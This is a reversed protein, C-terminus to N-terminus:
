IAIGKDKGHVINIETFIIRDCKLQIIDYGFNALYHEVGGQM